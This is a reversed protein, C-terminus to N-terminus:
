RCSRYHREPQCICVGDLADNSQICGTTEEFPGQKQTRRTRQRLIMARKPPSQCPMTTQGNRAVNMAELIIAVYSENMESPRIHVIKDCTDTGTRTAYGSLSAKGTHSTESSLENLCDEGHPGCSTEAALLCTQRGSETAANLFYTKWINPM